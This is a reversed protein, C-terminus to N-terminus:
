ISSSESVQELGNIIERTVLASELIFIPPFKILIFGKTDLINRPTFYLYFDM